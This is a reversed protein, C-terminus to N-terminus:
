SIQYQLIIRDRSKQHKNGTLDQRSDRRRSFRRVFEPVSKPVKHVNAVICLILFLFIRFECEQIRKFDRSIM